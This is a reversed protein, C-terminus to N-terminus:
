KMYGSRGPPTGKTRAPSTLSAPCATVTAAHGTRVGGLGPSEIQGIRVGKPPEPIELASRIRDLGFQDSEVADRGQMLRKLCQAVALFGEKADVVLGAQGARHGPDPELVAGQLDGQM